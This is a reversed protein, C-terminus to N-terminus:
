YLEYRDKFFKKLDDSIPSFLPGISGHVESSLYSLKSQLLYREPTGNPPALEASPNQDAIWQLTASNENLLTKDDLIVAPVNGKPNIAYFDKDKSPGTVVKHAQIDAEYANLKNGM